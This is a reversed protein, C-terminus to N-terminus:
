QVPEPLLGRVKISVRVEDDIIKDKVTGLLGSRYNVGWETRDIMFPLSTALVSNDVIKINAPFDVSKTVDKLQLNGAVLHTAGDITDVPTISAIEFSAMPYSEVAFFDENMLHGELRSKRDGELDTANITSMDINVTGGVLENDKVKLAGGQMKIIGKHGGAGLETAKWSVESFTPDVIFDASGSFDTNVELAEGASDAKEKGQCGLISLGLALIMMVNLIFKM